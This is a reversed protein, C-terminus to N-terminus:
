ICLEKESMLIRRTAGRFTQEVPKLKLCKLKLCLEENYGQLDGFKVTPLLKNNEKPLKGKPEPITKLV